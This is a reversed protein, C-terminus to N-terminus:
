RGLVHIVYDLRLKILFAAVLCIVAVAIVAKKETPTILSDMFGLRGRQPLRSQRREVAVLALRDLSVLYECKALSPYLTDM